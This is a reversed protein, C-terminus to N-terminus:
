QQGLRLFEPDRVISRLEQTQWKTPDERLGDWAKNADDTIGGYVDVQSPLYDHGTVPLPKPITEAVWAAASDVDPNNTERMRALVRDMAEDSFGRKAKIQEIQRTLAADHDRQAAEAERTDRADLRAQLEARATAEAELRAELAVRTKEVEGMLPTVIAERAAKAPFTAQPNHKAIVAEVTPADVPDGLMRDLLAASRQWLEAQARPVQVTNPDTITESV